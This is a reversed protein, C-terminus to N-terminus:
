RFAGVCEQLDNLMASSGKLSTEVDGIRIHNGRKLADIVSRDKGLDYAIERQGYSKGSVDYGQGDDIWYKADKTYDDAYDYSTDQFGFTVHGDDYWRFAAYRDDGSRRIARCNLFRRDDSFDAVIDWGGVSRSSRYPDADSGYGDDHSSSSSEGYADTKTEHSSASDYSDTRTDHSASDNSAHEDHPFDRLADRYKDYFGLRRVDVFEFEYDELSRVSNDRFRVLGRFRLCGDGCEVEDVYERANDDPTKVAIGLGHRREENIARFMLSQSYGRRDEDFYDYIAREESPSLDDETAVYIQREPISASTIINRLREHSYVTSFYSLYDCKEPPYWFSFDILVLQGDKYVDSLRRDRQNGGFELRGCPDHRDNSVSLIPMEGTDEHDGEFRRGLLDIKREAIYAFVGEPYRSLYRDYAERNDALSAFEYFAIEAEDVKADKASLAFKGYDADSQWTEQKGKSREKVIEGVKRFADELVIGPISIADVFASAFPSIPTGEYDYTTGPASAYAYHIGDANKPEALGDQIDRLLVFPNDHAADFLVVKLGTGLKRLTATVESVALSRNRLGTLTRGSADTPLLYNDGDIQVAYGSFYVFLVPNEVKEAVRTFNNLASLMGLHDADTVRTVSFDARELAEGVLDVDNLPNELPEADEYEANGILLAYREAAFAAPAALLFLCAALAGILRHITRQM